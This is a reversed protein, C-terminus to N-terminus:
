LHGQGKETKAWGGQLRITKIGLPVLYQKYQGYDAFDRDLTECGLTWNSGSIESASRPRITGIRKLGPNLSTKARDPSTDITPGAEASNWPICFLTLTIAWLWRQSRNMM